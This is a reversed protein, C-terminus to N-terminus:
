PLRIKLRGLAEMGKKASVLETLLSPDEDAQVALRQVSARRVSTLIDKLAKERDEPPESLRTEFLAAAERQEEEETFIGVAGAAAAGPNDPDKGLLQFFREAARKTIEDSFDEARIHNRIQPWM